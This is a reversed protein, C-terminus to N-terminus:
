ENLILFIKLTENKLRKKYVTYMSFYGDAYILPFYSYMCVNLTDIDIQFRKKTRKDMEQGMVNEM